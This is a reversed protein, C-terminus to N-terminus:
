IGALHKRIKRIEETDPLHAMLKEIYGREKIATLSAPFNIDFIWTLKFLITDNINQVHRSLTNRNELIDQVIQPSCGETDPMSEEMAPNAILARNAYYETVVRFIDLKDADRLIKAHLTSQEDLSDPIRYRNHLEVASLICHQESEPLRLLVGSERLIRSGEAAHDFSVRDTFTRFRAFQSFRGIDHFLAATEALMLNVGDLNLSKGIMQSAECVKRTHEYKLDINQRVLDDEGTLDNEGTFDQVYADFFQHFFTLDDQTM